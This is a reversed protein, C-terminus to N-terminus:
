RKLNVAIQGMDQSTKIAKSSVEYARQAVIMSVMEEVIQVNSGELYGQSVRGVGDSGPNALIPPGSAATESYLNQGSNSLGAPNIFRVLEIQGLTEPEVEGILTVSVTGDIAVTVSSSESPITIDPELAYGDATVIQGDPSVKFSGDRTYMVTGDPKMIQFFGEGEIALDLPNGTPNVNGQIFCKQTSVPKVGHGVQLEGPLVQGLNQTKGSQRLTNYILDQFEIRSSKFGTTNVNALNNAINDIFLQQAYMGTAATNLARDM